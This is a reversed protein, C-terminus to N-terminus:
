LLRSVVFILLVFVVRSSGIVLPFFQFLQVHNGTHVFIFFDCGVSETEDRRVSSWSVFWGTFPFVFKVNWYCSVFGYNDLKISLDEM